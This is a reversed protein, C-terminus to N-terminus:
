NNLNSNPSHKFKFGFSFVFLFPILFNLIFSFPLSAWGGGTRPRETWWAWDVRAGERASMHTGGTLAAGREGAGGESGRKRNLPAAGDAGKGIARERAQTV